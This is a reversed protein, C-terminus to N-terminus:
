RYKLGTGTNFLVTTEHDAIAGRARLTEYAAYTAGGEPCIDIGTRAALRQTASAAESESVTLATGGTERVSLAGPNRRDDQRVGGVRAAVRIVLRKDPFEPAPANHEHTEGTEHAHKSGGEAGRKGVGDQVDM